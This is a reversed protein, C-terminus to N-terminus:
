RAAGIAVAHIFALREDARDFKGVLVHLLELLTQRGAVRRPARENPGFRNLMPNKSLNFALRLFVCSWNTWSILRITVKEAVMVWCEMSSSSANNIPASKPMAM